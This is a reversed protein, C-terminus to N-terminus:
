VTRNGNSWELGDWDDEYKCVCLVVVMRGNENMVIMEMCVILVCVFVVKM